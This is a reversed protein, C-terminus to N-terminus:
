GNLKEKQRNEVIERIYDNNFWYYYNKAGKGDPTPALDVAKQAKPRVHFKKKDAGKWWFEESIHNSLINDMIHNWYVEAWELDKQPMTWYFVDELVYDEQGATQEKFVVFLFRSSFLEYLRSEIWENCESVEILLANASVLESKAGPVNSVANKGSKVVVGLVTRMYAMKLSFARRPADIEPNYPQKM